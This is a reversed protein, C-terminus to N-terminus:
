NASLEMMKHYILNAISMRTLNSFEYAVASFYFRSKLMKVLFYSIDINNNFKHHAFIYLLWLNNRNFRRAIHFRNDYSVACLYVGQNLCFNLTFFRYHM